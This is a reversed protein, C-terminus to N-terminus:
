RRGLLAGFSYFHRKLIFGQKGFATHFTVARAAVLLLFDEEEDTNQYLAFALLLYVPEMKALFLYTSLGLLFCAGCATNEPNNM